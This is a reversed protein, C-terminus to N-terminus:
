IKTNFIEDSMSEVGGCFLKEFTDIEEFLLHAEFAEYCPTGM